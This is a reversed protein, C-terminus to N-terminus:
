KAPRRVETPEATFVSGSITKMNIHRLLNRSRFKDLRFNFLFTNGAPFAIHCSMKSRLFNQSTGRKKKYKLILLYHYNKRLVRWTVGLEIFGMPIKRCINQDCNPPLQKLLGGYRQYHEEEKQPGRTSRYLLSSLLAYQNFSRFLVTM